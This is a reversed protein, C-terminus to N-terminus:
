ENDKSGLLQRRVIAPQKWVMLTAEPGDNTANPGFDYRLYAMDLHIIEIDLHIYRLLPPLYLSVVAAQTKNYTTTESTMSLNM